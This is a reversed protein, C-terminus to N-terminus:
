GSTPLTPRMRLIDDIASKVPSHSGASSSTPKDSPAALAADTAAAQLTDVLDQANRYDAIAQMKSKLEDRAAALEQHVADDPMANAAGVELQQIAESRAAIEDLTIPELAQLDRVAQAYSFAAMKAVVDATVDPSKTDLDTYGFALAPTEPMTPKTSAREVPTERPTSTPKGTTKAESKRAQASASGKKITVANQTDSASGGRAGFFLRGLLGGPVARQAGPAASLSGGKGGKGGKGYGGGKGGGKDGGNGGGGNGNGAWASDVGLGLKELGNPAPIVSTVVLALVCAASFASVRCRHRLLHLGAFM